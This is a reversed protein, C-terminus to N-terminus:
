RAAPGVRTVMMALWGLYIALVLAGTGIAIRIGSRSGPLRQLVLWGGVVVAVALIILALTGM